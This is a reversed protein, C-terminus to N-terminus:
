YAKQKTDRNRKLSLKELSQAINTFMTNFKRIALYKEALRTECLRQLTVGVVAPRQGNERFFKIIEKSTGV